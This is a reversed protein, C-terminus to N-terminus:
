QMPLRIFEKGPAVQSAWLVILVEEVAWPIRSLTKHHGLYYLFGFYSPHVYPQNVKSYFGLM